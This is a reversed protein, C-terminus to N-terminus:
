PPRRTGALLSSATWGCSGALAVAGPVLCALCLAATRAVGDTPAGRGARRVPGDVPDAPGRRYVGLLGLFFAPLFAADGLGHQTRTTKAVPGQVGLGHLWWCRAGALFLPHRAYRRAEVGALTRM